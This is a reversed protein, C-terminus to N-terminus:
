RFFQDIRRKLETVTFTGSRNSNAKSRVKEFEQIRDTVLETFRQAIDSHNSLIPRLCEANIALVLTDTVTTVTFFPTDEFVLASWGFSNGAVFNEGALKKGNELTVSPELEGNLVVYIQDVKSHEHVIESDSELLLLESRKAIESIEENTLQSFIELSRLTTNINLNVPKLAKKRTLHLDQVEASVQIGAQTLAQHIQMFLAEQGKFHALYNRYHVWITYIYPNSSANNLRIAPTPRTMVHRCRSVATSLITKVDAPSVEPSIQIEYWRGYPPNPEDLNTIAQNALTINPFIYMTNNFTKLWTARWTMQTVQGVTGNELELWDGIKFPKEISFSIGSFLNGLTNQLALGIVGAIIGTSLLFGTLPYDISWLFLVLGFFVILGFALGRILQPASYGTRKFVYRQMVIVDMGRAMIWFILIYLSFSKVKELNIGLDRVMSKTSLLELCNFVLVVLLPLFLIDLLLTGIAYKTVLSPDGVRRSYFIYALALCITAITIPINEQIIELM